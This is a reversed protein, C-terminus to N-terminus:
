ANASVFSRIGARLPEPTDRESKDREPKKAFSAHTEPPTTNAAAVRLAALPWLAQEIREKSENEELPWLAEGAFYLHSGLHASTCKPACASTCESLHPRSAASTRGFHASTRRPASPHAPTTLSDGLTASIADPRRRPSARERQGASLCTTPSSTGSTRRRNASLRGDAEPQHHLSPTGVRAAARRGWANLTSATPSKM